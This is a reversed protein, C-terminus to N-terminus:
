KRLYRPVSEAVEVERESGDPMTIVAKDVFARKADWVYRYKFVDGNAYVQAVLVGSDYTNRLLVLGHEDAIATMLAGEYQYHREQGSSHIADLLMGLPGASYEYRVWEGTDDEARTIRAQDDYSFKIWHGHPTLIELLNRQRDRQLELKNGSADRIETAAGQALNKANYSEPFIMEEGNAMRLTWGSGNWSITSKYFPTSTESHQYVADAYGTGSSIRDFYLFDGDELALMMYTYPNRTGLPAIDYPHNSNGGFAHMRSPALWDRSNYSRTLPVQFVDDIRLDTQRMVFAGYRLDVEFRDVTDAHVTPTACQGIAAVANGDIVPAVVCPHTGDLTPAPAAVRTYDPRVAAQTHVEMFADPDFDVIRGSILDLKKRQQEFIIEFNTFVWAGTANGGILHVRAEDKPGRVRMTLDAEKWGTEDHSVHGYVGSELTMPMGLMHIVDGNGQMKALALNIVSARETEQRHYIQVVIGALMLFCLLLLGFQVTKRHWWPVAKSHGCLPCVGGRRQADALSTDLVQDVAANVQEETPNLVVGCGNCKM